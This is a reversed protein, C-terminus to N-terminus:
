ETTPKEAKPAQSGKIRIFLALESRSFYRAKGIRYSPLGMAEYEMLTNYCVGVEESGNSARFMDCNTPPNM